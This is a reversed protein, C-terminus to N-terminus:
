HEPCSQTELWGNGSDEQPTHGCLGFKTFHTYINDSDPDFPHDLAKSHLRNRLLRSNTTQLPQQFFTDTDDNSNENQTPNKKAFQFTFGQHSLQGREVQLTILQCNHYITNYTRSM